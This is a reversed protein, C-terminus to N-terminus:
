PNVATMPFPTTEGVFVGVLLSTTPQTVTQAPARVQVVFRYAGPVAAIMVVRATRRGTINPAGLTIEGVYARTAGEDKFVAHLELIWGGPDSGDQSICVSVASGYGEPLVETSTKIPCARM